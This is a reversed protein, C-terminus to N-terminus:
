SPNYRSSERVIKTRHPSCCESYNYIRSINHWGHSDSWALEKKLHKDKFVKYINKKNGNEKIWAEATEVTSEKKVFEDLPLPATKDFYKEGVNLRSTIYATPKQFRKKIEGKSPSHPM